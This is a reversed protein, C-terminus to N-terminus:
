KNQTLKVRVHLNSMYLKYTAVPNIEMIPFQAPMNSEQDCSTCNVITRSETKLIFTLASLTHIKTLMFNLVIILANFPIFLCYM